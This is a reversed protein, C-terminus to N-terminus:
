QVDTTLKGRINGAESRINVDINLNEAPGNAKLDIAPHLNYGAAGPVVRGIEPLSVTGTTTLKVVPTSLYNEVVGDVTVSTESTHLAVNEMYLNDDRVALKGTLNQ